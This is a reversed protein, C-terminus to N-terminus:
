GGFHGSALFSALLAGGLMIFAAAALAGFAKFRALHKMIRILKQRTSHHDTAHAAMRNM